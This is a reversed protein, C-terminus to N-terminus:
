WTTSLVGREFYDERLLHGLAFLLQGSEQGLSAALDFRQALFVREQPLFNVQQHPANKTGATLLQVRGLQVQEKLDRLGVGCRSDWRRRCWNGSAGTRWAWLVHAPTLM